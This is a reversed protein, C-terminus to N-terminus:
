KKVKKIKNAIQEIEKELKDRKGQRDNLLWTLAKKEFDKAFDRILKESVWESFWGKNRIKNLNEYIVMALESLNASVIRPKQRKM